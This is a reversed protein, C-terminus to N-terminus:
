SYRIVERVNAFIADKKRRTPKGKSVLFSKLKNVKDKKLQFVQLPPPPPSYKENTIIRDNSIAVYNFEGNVEM